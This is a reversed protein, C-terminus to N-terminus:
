AYFVEVLGNIDELSDLEREYEENMQESYAIIKDKFIEFELYDGNAKHYEFQVSQRATPFIQPQRKLAMMMGTAKEILGAEFPMAGNGNWNEALNKFGRLTVLNKYLKSGSYVVPKTTTFDMYFGVM